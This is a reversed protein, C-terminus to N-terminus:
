PRLREHKCKVVPGQGIGNPYYVGMGRCDPCQNIDAPRVSNMFAEVLADAEGSRYINTAYGGPNTIGQGTAKLHDAFRRCEELSFRSGVSAGPQTQTRTNTESLVVHEKMPGDPPPGDNPPPGSRRTARHKKRAPPEFVEWEIGQERNSGFIMGKKRVLGKSVLGKTALRAGNESMGSREGLRPFNIICTPRDFGWTLRYLQMYVAQEIPTLRPLLHDTMENYWQLHGAVGPLSNLLSSAPPGGDLLPGGDPLPGSIQLASTPKKTPGSRRPPGSGSPPSNEPLPGSDLSPGSDPPPSNELPPSSGPPPGSDSPPSSLPISTQLGLLEEMPHAQPLTRLNDFPISRTLKGPQKTPVQFRKPKQSSDAM